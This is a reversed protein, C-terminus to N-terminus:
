QFLTRLDIPSAQPPQMPAPPPAVSPGGMGSLMQAIANPDSANAGRAQAQRALAEALGFMNAQDGSRNQMMADRWQQFRAQREPDM